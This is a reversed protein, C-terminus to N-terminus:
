KKKAAAVKNTFREESNVDSEFIQAGLNQVFNSLAPDESLRKKFEAETFIRVGTDPHVCRYFVLGVFFAGVDANAMEQIYNGAVGAGATRWYFTRKKGLFMVDAKFDWAKDPRKMFATEQQIATTLDKLYDDSGSRELEVNAQAQAAKKQLGALGAKKKVAAM